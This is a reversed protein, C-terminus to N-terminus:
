SKKSIGFEHIKYIEIFILLKLIFGQPKAWGVHPGMPEESNVQQEVTLLVSCRQVLSDVAAHFGQRATESLERFRLPDVDSILRYLAQRTASLLEDRLIQLYLAQDRYVSVSRQRCVRRLRALQESPDHCPPHDRGPM